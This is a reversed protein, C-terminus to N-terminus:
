LWTAAPRVEIGAEALVRRIGRAAQLAAPTDGHLCLTDVELCMSGGDCDRLAGRTALVLAREAIAEADSLVAGPRSRPVLTGDPQYARDTFGERAVRLGALRAQSEVASGGPAFVILGPDSLRVADTVARAVEDSVAADNYLAGHPKVHHLPVGATRCFAALAGIQYLIDTVLEQHSIAMHRRGFGVRDPYSVHAGVAVGHRACLDVTAQMVRPDGAHFGCAVNASSILPIIEEDMGLRYPGYSEGLDSNLDIISVAASAVVEKQSEM